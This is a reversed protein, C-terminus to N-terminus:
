QIWFTFFQRESCVSNTNMFYILLTFQIINWCCLVICFMAPPVLVPWFTRGCTVSFWLYCLNLRGLDNLYPFGLCTIHANSGLYWWLSMEDQLFDIDHLLYTLIWMTDNSTFWFIHCCVGTLATSHIYHKWPHFYLPLLHFTLVISKQIKFSLTCSAHKIPVKPKYKGM